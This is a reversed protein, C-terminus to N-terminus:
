LNKGIGRRKERQTFFKSALTVILVIAVTSALPPHQVVCVYEALQLMNKSDSGVTHLDREERTCNTTAIWATASM